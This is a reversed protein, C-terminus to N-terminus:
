CSLVLGDPRVLKFIEIVKTENCALGGALAGLIVYEADLMDHEIKRWFKPSTEHPLKGQYKLLLDLSYILRIQLWRFYAWGSNIASAEIANSPARHGLLQGYIQRVKDESSAAERKASEVAQPFKSFPIGNLHPFFEHVMMALEFFDQTDKAVLMKREERAKIQDSTWEFTGAGLRSNFEFVVRNRREYLPTCAKHISLEYALLTGVNPILEVPNTRAPFKNFCNRMSTDATTMLEYFLVDPMLLSYDNCLSNILSPRAADLYSKDLIIESM